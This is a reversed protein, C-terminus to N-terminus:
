GGLNSLPSSQDQAVGAAVAERECRLAAALTFLVCDQTEGFVGGQVVITSSLNSTLICREESYNGCVRHYIQM